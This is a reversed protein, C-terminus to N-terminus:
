NIVLIHNCNSNIVNISYTGIVNINSGLISSDFTYPITQTGLGYSIDSDQPTFIINVQEGSFNNSTIEVTQSM